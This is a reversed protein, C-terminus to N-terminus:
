HKASVTKTTNSLNISHSCHHSGSNKSANWRRVLGFCNIFEWFIIFSDNTYIRLLYRWEWCSAIDEDADGDDVRTSKAILGSRPWITSLFILEFFGEFGSGVFYLPSIQDQPKLFILKIEKTKKIFISNKYKNIQKSSTAFCNPLTPSTDLHNLM